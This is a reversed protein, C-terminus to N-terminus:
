NHEIKMTGFSIFIFIFSLKERAIMRSEIVLKICAAVIVLVVVPPSQAAPALQIPPTAGVLVSAATIAVVPAPAIVVAAPVIVQAPNVMLLPAVRVMFLGNMTLPAVETVPVKFKPDVFAVELRIVKLPSTLKFLPAIHVSVAVEAIGVKVKAFLKMLLEVVKVASVPTCVKLPVPIDNLPLLVLEIALIEIVPVYVFLPIKVAVVVSIPAPVKVLPAVPVKFIPPVEVM